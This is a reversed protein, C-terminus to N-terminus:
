FRQIISRLFRSGTRAYFTVAKNTVKFIRCCGLSISFIHWVKATRFYTMIMVLGIVTDLVREEM